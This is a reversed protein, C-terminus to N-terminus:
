VGAAPGALMNSSVPPAIIIPVRLCVLNNNNDDVIRLEIPLSTGVPISPEIFMNLSYQVEEGEKLPCSSNTLYNCTQAAEGLPYSVPFISLFATAHTTMSQVARPARFKINVVADQGQPFVCPPTVCGEIYTHIPLPGSHFTCQSVDTSPPPPLPPAIIIPVRLCALNNNNDDVIRLEIPLSTGVPFFPEIFMNLSYQVEEGEKLPCSNNTLYNCTQAAEGLPYFIPILLFGTVHTTMSQVARPARFKINVVADQEQPFVCPPTVCGEIYTHIPLPGSHFTCQNVNTTQGHALALLACVYAVVRLM